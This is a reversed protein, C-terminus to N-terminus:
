KKEAEVIATQEDQIIAKHRNKNQVKRSIICLVLLTCLLLAFVGVIIVPVIFPIVLPKQKFESELEDIEQSDFADTVVEETEGGFYKVEADNFCM